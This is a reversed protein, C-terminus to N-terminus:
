SYNHYKALKHHVCFSVSKAPACVLLLDMQILTLAAFVSIISTAVGNYCIRPARNRRNGYRVDLVECIGWPTDDAKTYMDAITAAM